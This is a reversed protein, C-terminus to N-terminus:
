SAPAAQRRGAADHQLVAARRGIDDDIGDLLAGAAPTELPEVLDDALVLEPRDELAILLDGAIMHLLDSARRFRTREGRVNGRPSMPQMPWARLVRMRILSASGTRDTGCVPQWIQTCVEPTQAQVRIIDGSGNGANFSALIVAAFVLVVVRNM